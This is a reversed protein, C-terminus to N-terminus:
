GHQIAARPGLTENLRVTSDDLEIEFDTNTWHSGLNIRHRPSRNDQSGHVTLSHMAVIDGPEAEVCEAEALGAVNCVLLNEREIWHYLRGLLHSGPVAFLAGNDATFPTLPTFLACVRQDLGGWYIGDQHWAKEHRDRPPKRLLFGLFMRSPGNLAQIISGVATSRYFDAFADHRAEPASIWYPNDNAAFADVALNRLTVVSTPDLAQRFVCYGKENFTRRDDESIGGTAPAPVFHRTDVYQDLTNM